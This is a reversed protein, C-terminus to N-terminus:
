WVWAVVALFFAGCVSLVVPSRVLARQYHAEPTNFLTSSAMLRDRRRLRLREAQGDRRRVPRHRARQVHDRGQRRIRPAPDAPHAQVGRRALKAIQKAKVCRDIVAKAGHASAPAGNLNLCDSRDSEGLLDSVLVITRTPAPWSPPPQMASLQRSMGNILGTATGTPGVDQAKLFTELNDMIRTKAKKLDKKERKENNRKVYFGTAGDLCRSVHPISDEGTWVVLKIVGGQELTTDITPVLNQVIFSRTDPSDDALDVLVLTAQPHPPVASHKPQFVDGDCSASDAARRDEAAAVAAALLAILALAILSVRRM